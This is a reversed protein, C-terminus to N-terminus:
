AVSIDSHTIAALLVRIYSKVNQKKKEIIDQATM